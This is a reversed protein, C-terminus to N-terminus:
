FISMAIVDLSCSSLLCLINGIVQLRLSMLSRKSNCIEQGAEM